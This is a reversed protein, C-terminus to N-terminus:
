LVLWAVLLLLLCIIAAAGAVRSAPWQVAMQALSFGAGFLIGIAILTFIIHMSHITTAQM